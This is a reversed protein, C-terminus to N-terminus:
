EDESQQGRHRTEDKEEGGLGRVDEVHHDAETTPEPGDQEHGDPERDKDREDKGPVPARLVKFLSQVAVVIVLLGFALTLTEEETGLALRSGLLSGAVGGIGVVLGDVLRVRRNRLNVVTASLATFIIAVLSTGQAAYQGLGLFFVAAPVIIVGGGVGSMGAFFGALAGIGLAVVIRTAGELALSTGIDGSGMVMRLGAGLLVLSFVVTLTRPSSRHMLTAGVSSGLVGGLGILVGIALDVEGAAAFALAGSIGIPIISALSTAHARHRDFGLWVLLPVLIIGGGVGFTGALAGAALGVLVLKYWIARSETV